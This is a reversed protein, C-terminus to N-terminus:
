NNIIKEIEDISYNCYKNYIEKTNKSSNSQSNVGATSKFNGVKARISEFSLKTNREMEKCYFTQRGRTFNEQELKKFIVLCRLENKDNWESGARYSM